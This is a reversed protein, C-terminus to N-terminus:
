TNSTAARQESMSTSFLAKETFEAACEATLIKGSGPPGHFLCVLGRDKQQM